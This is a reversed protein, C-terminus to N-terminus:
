YFLPSAELTEELHGRAGVENELRELVVALAYPAKASEPKLDLSRIFLLSARELDDAKLMMAQSFLEEADDHDKGATRDM